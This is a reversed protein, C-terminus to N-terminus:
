AWSGRYKGKKWIAFVQSNPAANVYSEVDDQTVTSTNDQSCSAMIGTSDPFPQDEPCCVLDLPKSSTNVSVDPYESALAKVDATIHPSELYNRPLSEWKWHHFHEFVAFFHKCPIRFQIWDKCTCSPTSTMLGFDVM